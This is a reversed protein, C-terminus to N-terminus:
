REKLAQLSLIACELEAPVDSVTCLNAQLKLSLRKLPQVVDHLLCLFAVVGSRASIRMLGRAKLTSSHQSLCLLVKFM